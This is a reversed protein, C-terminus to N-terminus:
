APLEAIQVEVLTVLAAMPAPDFVLSAGAAALLEPLPRTAGLALAERYSALASARDTLANRWVQLAALQALGYEIYYFPYLFVHLQRLWRARREQEVGEWEIGVGFRGQIRVWADDRADRDHGEGSTYLWHQFADIAAVHPLLELIGELHERRARGADADSYYGGSTKALYPATLLEMSMSATEAMEMGPHRQFTYPLHRAEFTHFAHGSEHMLTEVDGHVGAANMFIFPRGRHPLSTCYGGPRKGRRSDLDLLGEDAMVAFYRGLTPDLRDFIRRAGAVLMSVDDFPHLPPRGEPDVGLDWPRLAPLGMMTRRRARMRAVAPMVAREVGDHFRECHSPTYDFRHKAQHVYDRYSAFGANRAMAVRVAYLRDFVDALQDRAAIYPAAQLRFARERVARDHSLLFPALRPLPLDEGQWRATMGGTLRNYQAKLRAAEAELPVNEARFLAATNRFRRITTALEPPHGDVATLQRGLRVHQEELKPSIESTFRLFAAEKAANETDTTHAITALAMAEGLAEELASWRGLWATLTGRDPPTVALAAYRPALDDWTADAFTAPTAASDDLM